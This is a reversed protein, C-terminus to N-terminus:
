SKCTAGRIPKPSSVYTATGDTGQVEFCYKLGPSVPITLTTGEGRYTTKPGGKGGQEAMFVAYDLPKSSKWNLVVFSHRDQPAQLVIEVV